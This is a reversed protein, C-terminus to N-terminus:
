PRRSLLRGIRQLLAPRDEAPELRARIADLVTWGWAPKPLVVADGFAARDLLSRPEATVIVVLSASRDNRVRSAVSEVADLDFDDAFVVLAASAPAAADNARDIGRSVHVAVGARRLYAEVLPEGSTSVLTVTLPPRSRRPTM